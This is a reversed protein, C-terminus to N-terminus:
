RRFYIKLIIKINLHNCCSSEAKETHPKRATWQERSKCCQVGPRSVHAMDEYCIGSKKTHTHVEEATQPKLEPHRIACSSYSGCVGM